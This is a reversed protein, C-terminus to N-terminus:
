GLSAFAAHYYFTGVVDALAGPTLELAMFVEDSVDYECTIGYTSKAPVFGAKPYFWPHGLVFVHAVGMLKLLDIAGSILQKGIGKGQWGSKVAMPALAATPVTMGQETRIEASSFAIQGVIEGDVEAVVSLLLAGQNRLADVLNAEGERGFADVNVQHIATIDAPTEQRIKM